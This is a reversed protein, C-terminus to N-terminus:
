FFFQEKVVKGDKVEYVVIEELNIRGPGELTIDMGMGVSIFNGGVIPETVYGGHVEKLRSLFGQLKTKIADLGKTPQGGTHEPEISVADQSYLETLAQEYSGTRCLAVLRNAIEQTTMRNTKLLALICSIKLFHFEIRGMGVKWAEGLGEWPPSCWRVARVQMLIMVIAM